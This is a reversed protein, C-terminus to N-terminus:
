NPAAWVRVGSDAKSRALRMNLQYQDPRYYVEILQLPEGRDNKVV